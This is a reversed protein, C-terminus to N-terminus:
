SFIKKIKERTCFVYKYNKLIKVKQYINELKRLLVPPIEHIECIREYINNQNTFDFLFLLLWKIYYYEYISIDGHFCKKENFEKLNMYHNMKIISLVVITSYLIEINICFKFKQQFSKRCLVNGYMFYLQFMINYYTSSLETFSEVLSHHYHYNCPNKLKKYKNKTDLSIDSSFDLKTQHLLEHICLRHIEEKRTIISCLKNDRTFHSFTIGSVSFAQFNESSKDINCHTLFDKKIAIPIWILNIKETTDCGSTKKALSYFFICIQLLEKCTKILKKKNHEKKYLVFFLVHENEFKLLITETKCYDRIKSNELHLLITDIIFKKESLRTPFLRFRSECHILKYQNYFYNSIKEYDINIM